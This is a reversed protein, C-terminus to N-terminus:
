IKRAEIFLNQGRGVLVALMELILGTVLFLPTLIIKLYKNKILQILNLSFGYHSFITRTKIINFGNERLFFSLNNLSWSYRHSPVSFGTWNKGILIRCLSDYNPQTIFLRGNKKLIQYIKNIFKHPNDIHEFVHRMVVGDYSRDKIKIKDISGYLTKFGLKGFIRKLSTRDVDNCEIEHGQRSLTRALEGSGSGIDLIKLSKYHKLHGFEYQLMLRKLYKLLFGEEAIDAGASDPIPGIFIALDCKKCIAIKGERYLYKFSLYKDTFCVPCKKKM